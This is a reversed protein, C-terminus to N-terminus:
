SPDTHAVVTAGPKARGLKGQRLPILTVGFAFLLALVTITTALVPPVISFSVAGFAVASVWLYLVLVTRRHTHGLSLLRHHIHAKDASFPSRGQSLRRIVAWVLDLVPIFVAAAVVIFPSALAVMDVTGYLSMNIKGSASTSAAALLLGILMSGSDGMFIRSPEFNHPLFGACIGVLAAAIIAPPYASVAGGQDHLVTLSFVLIAAGAILGLGAALGDLGDVFNMANILLVTFFTTLLTGQIQDLLVTTGDGLPIFLLTWTLGLGSMIGAALLQGVLKVVASLEVLDDIVGVLVVALAAWLVANMEPTVPMFGRTLAPFQGAIFVAAAFGTFMAVGGMQPTPQSHSDRLRIEAVRGTRVLFSRVLGTALYTFTAAVLIVLAIERLPVGTGGM